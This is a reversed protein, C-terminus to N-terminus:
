VTPPATRRIALAIDRIFPPVTVRLAEGEKNAAEFECRVRGEATDWATVRFRGLAM